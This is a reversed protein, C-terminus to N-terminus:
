RKEGRYDEILVALGLITDALVTIAFRIIVIGIVMGVGLLMGYKIAEM